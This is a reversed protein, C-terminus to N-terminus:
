STRDPIETDKMKYIRYKISFSFNFKNCLITTSELYNELQSHSCLTETVKLLHLKKLVQSVKQSSKQCNQM